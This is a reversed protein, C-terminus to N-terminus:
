ESSLSLSPVFPLASHGDFVQLGPLTTSFLKSLTLLEVFGNCLPDWHGHLAHSMYEVVETKQLDSKDDFFLIYVISGPAEAIKYTWIERPCAVRGIKVRHKMFPGKRSRKVGYILFRLGSAWDVLLFSRGVCILVEQADPTSPWGVNSWRSIKRAQKKTM